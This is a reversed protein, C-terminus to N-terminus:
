GVGAQRCSERIAQSGPDDLTAHRVCAREARAGCAQFPTAGTAGPVIAYVCGPAPEPRSNGVTALVLALCAVVTILAAAIAVNRERGTLRRLPTNVRHWHGELPM